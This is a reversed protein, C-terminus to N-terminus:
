HLTVKLRDALRLALMMLTLTPNSVGGTPFVSLSAISLNSIGFVNLNTDVVGDNPSNSMRSGGMIHYNDNVSM